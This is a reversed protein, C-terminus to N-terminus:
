VKENLKINEEELKAIKDNIFEVRAQLYLTKLDRIIEEKLKEM